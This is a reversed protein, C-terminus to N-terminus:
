DLQIVPPTDMGPPLAGPVLESDGDERDGDEGDDSPLDILRDLRMGLQEAKFDPIRFAWDATRSVLEAFDAEVDFPAEEEEPEAEAEGAEEDAADEAEPEAFAAEATAAASSGTGGPAFPSAPIAAARGNM